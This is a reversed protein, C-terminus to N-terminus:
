KLLMLSSKLVYPFIVADHMLMVCVVVYLLPVTFLFYSYGTLISITIPYPVSVVPLYYIYFSIINKRQKNTQKLKIDFLYLVKSTINFSTLFLRLCFTSQSSMGHGFM